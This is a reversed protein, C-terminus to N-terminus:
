KIKTKNQKKAPPPPTNIDVQSYTNLYFYDLDPFNFESWDRPPATTYLKQVAKESGNFESDSKIKIEIEPM